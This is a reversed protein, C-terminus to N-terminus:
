IEFGQFRPVSNDVERFWLATEMLVEINKLCGIECSRTKNEHPHLIGHLVFKYMERFVNLFNLEM